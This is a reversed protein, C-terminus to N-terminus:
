GIKLKLKEDKKSWLPQQLVFKDGNHESAFGPHPPPRGMCCYQRVFFDLHIKLVNGISVCVCYHTLGQYALINSPDRCGLSLGEPHGIWYSIRTRGPNLKLEAHSVALYEKKPRESM